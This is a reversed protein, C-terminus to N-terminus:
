QTRASPHPSRPARGEITLLAGLRRREAHVPKRVARELCRLLGLPDCWWGAADSKIYTPTWQVGLRIGFHPDPLIKVGGGWTTSFQTESGINHAQGAVTVDGSSFNTTGLGGFMFPRVKSDSHGFNYGFYGHYNKITLDGLERDASGGLVM